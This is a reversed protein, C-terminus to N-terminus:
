KHISDSIYYVVSADVIKNATGKIMGHMKAEEASLFRRQNESALISKIESDSFDTCEKYVSFFMKNYEDLNSEVIGLQDPQIRGSVWVNAPHLIFRGGSLSIRDHAGCFMMTASSMVTVLNVSTIPIKSSKIAMYAMYGSDMGGGYSDIYLYIKKLKHNINLEDIAKILDIVKSSTVGGVYFIKGVEAESKAKEDIISVKTADAHALALFFLVSSIIAATSIKKAIYTM